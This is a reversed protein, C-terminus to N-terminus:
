FNFKILKEKISDVIEVSRTKCNLIRNIDYILGILNNNNQIYDNNFIKLKKIDDCLLDVKAQYKIINENYEDKVRELEYYAPKYRYYNSIDTFNCIIVCTIITICVIIVSLFTYLHM